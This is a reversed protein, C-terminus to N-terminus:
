ELHYAKTHQLQDTNLDAVSYTSMPHDSSADTTLMFSLNYFCVKGQRKGAKATLANSHSHIEILNLKPIYMYLVLQTM